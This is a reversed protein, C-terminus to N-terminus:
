MAATAASAGHADTHGPEDDTEITKDGAAMQANLKAGREFEALSGVWGGNEEALQVDVQNWTGAKNTKSKTTLRYVHAWSADIAAGTQQSNMLVMWQKSVTHGTSKFPIAYPAARGDPFMVFGIHYRTEIMENGNPRIMKKQMQGPQDDSEVETEVADDPCHPFRGVLGGGQARPIWEVWDKSFHCPQFLFGEDGDFVTRTGKLWFDGEKAGDIYAPNRRGAQPSNAQLTYILPILNDEAAQSTGKGAHEALQTKLFAPPGSPPIVAPTKVNTDDPNTTTKAM